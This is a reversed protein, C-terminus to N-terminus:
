LDGATRRRYYTSSSIGLAKWPEKKDRSQVPTTLAKEIPWGYRFIRNKLIDQPLGVELALDCVLVARGRYEIPRNRSSNRNQEAYTAWRCNGPEYNGDNEIRDITLNRRYGHDLAWDRFAEFSRRWELCISIGRGGYRDFAECNPNECRAIM